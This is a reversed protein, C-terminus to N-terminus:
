KDQDQLLQSINENLDFITKNEMEHRFKSHSSYLQFSLRYSLLGFGFANCYCIFWNISLTAFEYEMTYKSNHHSMKKGRNVKFATLTQVCTYAFCFDICLFIQVIFMFIQGKKAHNFALQINRQRMQTKLKHEHRHIRLVCIHENSVTEYQCYATKERVCKRDKKSSWKKRWQKVCLCM